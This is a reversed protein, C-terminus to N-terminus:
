SGKTPRANVNTAPSSGAARQAIHSACFQEVGHQIVLAALTACPIGQYVTTLLDVITAFIMRRDKGPQSTCYVYVQEAECVLKRIEEIRSQFWNRGARRSATPDPKSGLSNALLHEGLIEELRDVPLDLMSEDVRDAM